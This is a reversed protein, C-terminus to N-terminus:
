INDAYSNLSCRLTEVPTLTHEGGYTDLWHKLLFGDEKVDCKTKGESKFLFEGKAHQPIDGPHGIVVWAM